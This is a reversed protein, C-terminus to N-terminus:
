RHFPYHTIHMSVHETYNEGLVVCKSWTLILFDGLPDEDQELMRTRLEIANTPWIQVFLLGDEAGTTTSLIRKAAVRLLLRWKLGARRLNKAVM